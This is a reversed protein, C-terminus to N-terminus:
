WTTPAPRESLRHYVGEIQDVMRDVGYREQIITRIQQAERRAGRPDSLLSVLDDALDETTVEARDPGHDAFCVARAEEYNEPTVIGFYGTRGYAVTPAA